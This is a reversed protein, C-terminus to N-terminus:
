QGPFPSVAVCRKFNCYLVLATVRQKNLNLTLLSDGILLLCSLIFQSVTAWIVSEHRRTPKDGLHGCVGILM